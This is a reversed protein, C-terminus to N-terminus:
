SEAGPSRICRILDAHGGHSFFMAIDGVELDKVSGPQGKERVITKDDYSLTVTKGDRRVLVITGNGISTIQGRDFDLARTTGDAYRVQIDAHVARAFPRPRSARAGSPQEQASSTSAGSAEALIPGSASAFVAQGAFLAGAVLVAAVLGAAGAKGIAKM